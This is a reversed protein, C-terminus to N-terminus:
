ALFHHVERSQAELKRRLKDFAAAEIQRVREKSLSLEQGLNELTRPSDRLRRETVIHRERDSLDAMADLPKM